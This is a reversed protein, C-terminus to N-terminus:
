GNSQDTREKTRGAWSLSCIVSFPLFLFHFTNQNPHFGFNHLFFIFLPSKVKGTVAIISKGKIQCRHFLPCCCGTAICVFTPDFLILKIKMFLNCVKWIWESCEDGGTNTCLAHILFNPWSFIMIQHLINLEPHSFKSSRFVRHTATTQPCLTPTLHM